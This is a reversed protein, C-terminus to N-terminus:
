RDFRFRRDFSDKDSSTQSLYTAYGRAADPSLGFDSRLVKVVEFANSLDHARTEISAQPALLEWAVRTAREESRETERSGYEGHESRALLHTHVGLPLRQLLATIHDDDTPDRLGDLVDVLEPATEEVEQRILLYDTLFHGIEHALSVRRESEDLASDVFVIGTGAYAILAARLPRPAAHVHLQTQRSLLWTEIRDTSLNELEVLALPLRTLAELELSVPFASPAPGDWFLEMVRQLWTPQYRTGKPPLDDLLSPDGKADRAAALLTHPASRPATALATLADALRVLAALRLEDTRVYHAIRRVDDGFGDGRRPSRCLALLAVREEDLDLPNALLEEVTEGETQVRALDFALFGKMTAARLAAQKLADGDSM